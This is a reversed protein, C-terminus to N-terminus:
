KPKYVDRASTDFGPDLAKLSDYLIQITYPANHMGRSRDELVFKYNYLAAM